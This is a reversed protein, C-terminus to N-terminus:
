LCVSGAPLHGAAAAGLRDPGPPGASESRDTLSGDGRRAGGLLRGPYLKPPTDQREFALQNEALQAMATAQQLFYSYVEGLVGSMWEYLEANTFKRALFEAVAQAQTMQTQAIRREQEAVGVHAQAAGIQAEGIAIEQEAIAAQTEFERERRRSQSLNRRDLM